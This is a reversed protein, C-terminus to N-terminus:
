RRGVLRWGLWLWVAFTLAHGPRHADVADVMSSLTPHAERPSEFFCFLEWGLTAALAGVWLAWRPGSSEPSPRVTPASPATASPTRGMRHDAYGIAGVGAFGVLVVADAPLTFPRTFAALMALGAAGVSGCVLLALRSM